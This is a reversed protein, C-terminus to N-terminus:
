ETPTCPNRTLLYSTPLRGAAGRACLLISHRISPAPRTGSGPNVITGHLEVITGTRGKYEGRCIVLVRQGVQLGPTPSSATPSSSSPASSPPASPSPTANSLKLLRLMRALEDLMIPVAELQADNNSPRPM